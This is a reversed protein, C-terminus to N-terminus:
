HKRKNGNSGNNRNVYVLLEDVKENLSAFGDTMTKDIRMLNDNVGKHVVDCVDKRTFTQEAKLKLDDLREYVRKRNTSEQHNNNLVFGAIGLVGLASAGGIVYVIDIM